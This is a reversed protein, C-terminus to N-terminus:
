HAEVVLSRSCRGAARAGTPQYLTRTAFRAHADLEDGPTVWRSPDAIHVWLRAGGDPLREVSLGDDIERTGADDITVVRHPSLDQRSGADADLPQTRLVAVAAEQRLVDPVIVRECSHVGPHAGTLVRQERVHVCATQRPGDGRLIPM